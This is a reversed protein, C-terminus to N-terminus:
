DMAAAWAMHGEFDLGTAMQRYRDRCDRYTAKDGRADALLARLQLLWLDHLVFGPETPYAALRDIARQAEDVDSDLRRRLLSEVLVSTAKAIWQAAEAAYLEDLAARVLEVAGDLDGTRAKERALHLQIVRLNNSFHYTDSAALEALLQYGEDRLPGEQHVVTIARTARAMDLVFDDGFQEAASLIETTERLAVADPLLIGNAIPILRVTWLAGSRMAPEITDAAEIAQAFDDRWGPLGMLCRNLGRYSLATTLPSVTLMRGGTVDGEALDIVRQALALVTSFRGAEMNASMPPVSLAVVLTPDDIADLLQLLESALRSSEQEHGLGELQRAMLLGCTGVALSRQDGAATCLRRLEEFGTDLGKVGLRYANACLQTRAAIRMAMHDPVDDSLRDAVQKARNWSSRAAAINRWTSWTAARMHWGFAGSLDGAAELHEAILAANEDGPKRSEIASALRRHLLARDAKLQAEYAVARILPHRFSYEASPTFRVQDVLQAEILPTVDHEEVLATLLEADFRMGVVAAANLTRKAAPDLRDIRAGITAQLSAPVDVSTVDGHLQYSGPRGVLVGREALDRVTEEAFFPNGAAREAVLATLGGLSPDTGLLEKTLTTVQEDTLPRLAITQTGQTRTLAGEYEPRYTILMLSRTQPIVAIFDALMSESAEDIWHADEVVYVAPETRATSSAKILATLRRRRADPGIAPLTETPDRIGLLDELMRVDDAGIHPTQARLHARAAQRDLGEVGSIARMLRGIVHFPVDSTHSECYTTFVPLEGKAAVASVERILRSKGIGAPGVINVVGGMGTTTEALIATVTDLEWTRGVLTSEIRATPHAGGAALLRRAAVPVNTGKIRVLERDALLVANEVLRATSEGLMVGGPPAASEMRQAMGVQEGITTYPAVSSGIEGAIVQGSNLGIRLPLTSGVEKQIDLAAMCARFAHDELMIPAGFVAMIGDGTFQSLTGGYRKVAAASRDLLDAMMERLREAGQSAAIDMSRVVDAFLVTVQKYEAAPRPVTM